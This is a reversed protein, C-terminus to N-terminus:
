TFLLLHTIKSLKDWNIVTNDSVSQMYSGFKVKNLQLYRIVCQSWCTAVNVDPKLSLTPISLQRMKSFFFLLHSM